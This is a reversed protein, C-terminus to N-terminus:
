VETPNRWSARYTPDCEPPSQWLRLYRLLERPTEKDLSLYQYAGSQVMGPTELEVNLIEERQIAKSLAEALLREREEERLLANQLKDERERLDSYVSEFTQRLKNVEYCIAQTSPITTDSTADSSTAETTDPTADSSTAEHPDPQSSESRETLRPSQRRRNEGEKIAPM